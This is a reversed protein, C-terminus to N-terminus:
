AQRRLEQLYEELPRATGTGRVEGTKRLVVVPANGVLARAEDGDELYRRSNYFFVWGFDEELPEGDLVIEDQPPAPYRTLWESVIHLAEERSIM